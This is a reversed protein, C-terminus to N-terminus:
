CSTTSRRHHPTATAHPGGLRQERHPRYCRCDSKQVSWSFLKELINPETSPPFGTLPARRSSEWAQNPPQYPLADCQYSYPLQGPSRRHRSPDPYPVAAVVWIIIYTSAISEIPICLLSDPTAWWPISAPAFAQPLAWPNPRGGVWFGESLGVAEILSHAVLEESVGWKRPTRGRARHRREHAGVRKASM